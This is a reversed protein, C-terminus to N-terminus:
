KAEANVFEKKKEALLPTFTKKEEASMKNFLDMLVKVDSAEKIESEYRALRYEEFEAMEETTAIEGNNLYGINALARGTSITSLKEFAKPDAMEKASYHAWGNGQMSNEDAQDVIINTEFDLSGDEHWHPISELRSRPNKSRFEKLRVPVTAYDNGKLNITRLKNM